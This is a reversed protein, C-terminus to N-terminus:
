GGRRTRRYEAVAQDVSPNSMAMGNIFVAPAGQNFVDIARDVGRRQEATPGDNFSYDIGSARRVPIGQSTLAAVLSEARRAQESPCNPPALVLVANRPAGSPMEVPVFGNPSPAIGALAAGPRDQWWQWGGYLSAAIALWLVIRM